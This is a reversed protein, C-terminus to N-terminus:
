AHVIINYALNDTGAPPPGAYEITVDTATKTTVRFDSMAAPSEAMVFAGTPATGLDHALTFTTTNDDGSATATTASSRRNWSINGDGDAEPVAGADATGSGLNALDAATTSLDVGQLQVNQQFDVTGTRDVYAIPTATARDTWVQRDNTSDYTFAFQTTGSANVFALDTDDGVNLGADFQWAGTLTAPADTTPVNAALSVTATGDGDDAARLGTGFNIDDPSSLIAAGDDSLTAATLASATTTVYWALNDTGTPPPDAYTVDVTTTTADSIWFDTSAARSAAEVVVGDPLAGLSHALTFTTTDDDGSATAADGAAASAPTTTGTFSLTATGDGDNSFSLDTGAYIADSGAVVPTGNTNEVDVGTEDITAVATGQEYITGAAARVDGEQTVELGTTAGVGLTLTGAGSADSDATIAVSGTGSVGAANAVAHGGADLNATLANVGDTRVYGTGDRGDLTGADLTGEDGTTLVRQSAGSETVHLSYDDTAGREIALIHDETGGDYYIDHRNTTEDFGSVETSDAALTLSHTVDGSVRLDPVSVSGPTIRLPTAATPDNTVTLDGTAPERELTWYTTTTEFPDDVWQLSAGIDPDPTGIRINGRYLKTM